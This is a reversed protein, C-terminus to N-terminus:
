DTYISTGVPVLLLNHRSEGMGHVWVCPKDITGELLSAYRLIYDMNNASIHTATGNPDVVNWLRGNYSRMGLVVFGPRPTNSHTAVYTRTKTIQAVKRSPLDSAFLQYRHDLHAAGNVTYVDVTDPITLM